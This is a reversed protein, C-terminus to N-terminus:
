LGRDEDPLDRWRKYAAEGDFRSPMMQPGGGEILLTRRPSMCAAELLKGFAEQEAMESPLKSKVEDFLMASMRRGDVITCYRDARTRRQLSFMSPAAYRQHGNLSWSHGMVWILLHQPSRALVFTRGGFDVGDISPHIYERDVLLLRNSTM